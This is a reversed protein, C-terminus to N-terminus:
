RVVVTRDCFERFAQGLAKLPEPPRRLAASEFSPVRIEVFTSEFFLRDWRISNLEAAGSVSLCRQYGLVSAVEALALAPSCTTMGGVSAHVGNNFAVHTLNPLRRAGIFAAGGLHMLFAGDGDLCWVRREPRALAIGAAVQSAHGMGGVSLFIQATPRGTSEFQGFLDRGIHGTTAVILDDDEFRALLM